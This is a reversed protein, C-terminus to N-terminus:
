EPLGQHGPVGGRGHRRSLFGYQRAAETFAAVEEESTFELDDGAFSTLYAGSTQKAIPVVMKGTVDGGM